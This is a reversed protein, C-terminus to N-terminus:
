VQVEIPEQEEIIPIPEPPVTIRKLQYVYKHAARMACNANPYEGEYYSNVYLKFKGGPNHRDQITIPYDELEYKTFEYGHHPHILTHKIWEM